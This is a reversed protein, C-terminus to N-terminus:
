REVGATTSGVRNTLTVSQATVANADGTITFPQSFFFQSGYQIAAPDQFWTNFLNEVPVTVTTSQLTQGPSAAFTVSLQTIERTTSYGTIEVALGNGSRVMRASTIVPAAREVRLTASTAGAPTIDIGGATLRMTVTITGAVTGTQIALPVTSVADTAGSPVTFNATRGGSAFQITSDGAGGDPAFSLLVQGTIPAPFPNGLSVRLPFQQAPQATEPLGSIQVSPAAPLNVRLRFLDVVTTQANDTVRVTFSLSGAAAPIGSILGTSRDIVLGEPLGNASWVYPPAGGSAALSTSFLENLTADPLETASIIRLTQAAVNITFTRSAAVGATDRASVVLSFTGPVTPAGSLIGSSTLLLGPVSGSTLSWVYPAAGGTVSLAQSYPSGVSASPLSGTTIILSPPTITISFPRSVTQGSRDTLAVSFSFTGEARPTGQLVGSVADITLGGADGSAISWRYPPSGGAASLTQAYPTGVTGNFLPSVTTIALAAPNVTLPLIRSATARSADAAQLTVTFSGTAVAAGSIVGSSRDIRLGEPL